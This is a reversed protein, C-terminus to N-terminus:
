NEPLLYDAIKEESGNRNQKDSLLNASFIPLKKKPPPPPLFKEDDPNTSLINLMTTSSYGYGHIIGGANLPTMPFPPPLTKNCIM